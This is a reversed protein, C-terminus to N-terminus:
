GNQSTTRSSESRAFKIHWPAKECSVVLNPAQGLQVGVKTQGPSDNKMFLAGVQFMHLIKADPVSKPFGDKVPKSTQATAHRIKSSWSRPGQNIYEKPM